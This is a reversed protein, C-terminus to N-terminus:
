EMQMGINTFARQNALHFPERLCKRGEQIGHVWKGDLEGNLYNGEEIHDNVHYMWFGVRMGDKYLGKLILLKNLGFEQFEGHELGRSYEESRIVFGSEDM